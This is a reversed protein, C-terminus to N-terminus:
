KCGGAGILLNHLDRSVFRKDGSSSSWLSRIADARDRVGLAPTSGRAEASKSTLSMAKFGCAIGLSCILGIVLAVMSPAKLGLGKFFRRRKSEKDQYM